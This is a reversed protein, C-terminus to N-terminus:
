QPDVLTLTPTTPPWPPLVPDPTPAPKRVWPLRLFSAGRNQCAKAYGDEVIGCQALTELLDTYDEWLVPVDFLLHHHGPTTSPVLRCPVDVDIAPMHWGVSLPDQAPPDAMESSYVNAQAVPTLRRPEVDDPDYGPDMGAGEDLGPVHYTLRGDHVCRARDVDPQNCDPDFPNRDYGVPIPM